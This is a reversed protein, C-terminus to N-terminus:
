NRERQIKHGAAVFALASTASAGRGKVIAVMPPLPAVPPSRGFVTIGSHAPLTSRAGADVAYQSLRTIAVFWRFGNQSLRGPAWVERTSCPFCAGVTWNDARCWQSSGM